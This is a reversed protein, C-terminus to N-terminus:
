RSLAFSFSFSRATSLPTKDTKSWVLLTHDGKIHSVCALGIWLDDWGLGQGVKIRWYTRNMTLIVALLGLIISLAVLTGGRGAPGFNVVGALEVSAMAINSIKQALHKSDKRQQPDTTKQRPRDLDTPSLSAM